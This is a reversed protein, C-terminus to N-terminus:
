PRSGNATLRLRAARLHDVAQGLQSAGSVGLADLLDTARTLQDAADTDSTCPQDPILEVHGSVSALEAAAAYLEIAVAAARQSADIDESGVQDDVWAYARALQAQATEISSPM